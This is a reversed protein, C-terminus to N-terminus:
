LYAVLDCGCGSFSPLVTRGMKAVSPPIRITAFVEQLPCSCWIVRALGVLKPSAHAWAQSTEEPPRGKISVQSHYQATTIIESVGAPDQHPQAQPQPRVVERDDEAPRPRHRPGGDQGEPRDGPEAQRGGAGGAPGVGGRGQGEAKM